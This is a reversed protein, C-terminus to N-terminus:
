AVIGRGAVIDGIGEQGANVQLVEGSAGESTQYSKKYNYVSRAHISFQKAAERDGREIAMKAIETKMEETFFRRKRKVLKKEISGGADSMAGTSVKSGKTKSRLIMYFDTSSCVNESPVRRQFLQYLKVRLCGLPM